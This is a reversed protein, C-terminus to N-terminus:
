TSEQDGHVEVARNGKTVDVFKWSISTEEEHGPPSPFPVFLIELATSTSTSPIIIEGNKKFTLFIDKIHDGQVHEPM